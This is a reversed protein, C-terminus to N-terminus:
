QFRAYQNLDRRIYQPRYLASKRLPEQIKQDPPHHQNSGHGENDGRMEVRGRQSMWSIELNYICRHRDQTQNRKKQYGGERLQKADAPPVMNELQGRTQREIRGYCQDNLQSVAM